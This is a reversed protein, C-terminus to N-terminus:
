LLPLDESTAINEAETLRRHWLWPGLLFPSLYQYQSPSIHISVRLDSDGSLETDVSPVGKTPLYLGQGKSFSKVSSEFSIHAKCCM